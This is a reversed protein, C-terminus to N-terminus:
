GLMTRVIAIEQSEPNLRELLTDYGKIRGGERLIWATIRAIEGPSYCRRDSLAREVSLDNAQM